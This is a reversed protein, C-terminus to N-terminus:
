RLPVEIVVEGNGVICQCALRSDPTAERMIALWDREAPGVPSTYEAGGRVFVHCTSCAAQGGCYHPLELGNNLLLELISAPMKGGVLDGTNLVRVQPM